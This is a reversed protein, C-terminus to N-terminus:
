IFLDWVVKKSSYVIQLVSQKLNLCCMFLHQNRVMPYMCEVVACDKQVLSEFRSSNKKV